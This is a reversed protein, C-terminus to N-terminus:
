TKDSLTFRIAIFRVFWTRDIASTVLATAFPSKFFFISTSTRPSISSKFTREEGEEM